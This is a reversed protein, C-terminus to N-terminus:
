ADFELIEYYVEAWGVGGLADRTGIGFYEVSLNIRNYQGATAIGHQLPAGGGSDAWLRPGSGVEQALYNPSALVLTQARMVWVKGAPVVVPAPHGPSGMLNFSEVAVNVRTGETVSVSRDATRVTGQLITRPVGEFWAGTGLPGAIGVAGAPAGFNGGVNGIILRLNAPTASGQYFRLTGTNGGGVVNINGNFTTDGTVVVEDGVVQFTPDKITDDDLEVVGRNGGVRFDGAVTTDGALHIRDSDIRVSEPSINIASVVGDGSVKLEIQNSLQSITSTFQDDTVLFLISYATQHILSLATDVGLADQGKLTATQVQTGDSWLRPTGDSWLMDFPLWYEELADVDFQVGDIASFAQLFRDATISQAASVVRTPRGVIYSDGPEPVKGAPWAETVTLQTGTRSAISRTVGAAVGSTLYVLDGVVVGAPDDFDGDADTLTLTGASDVIGSQVFDSEQRALSTRAEEATNRIGLYYSTTGDPNQLRDDILGFEQRYEEDSDTITRATIRNTRGVQFEDGVSPIPDFPDNVTILGGSVGTVARIQFTGDAGAVRIQDGPQIGLAEFDKSSDEVSLASAATVAGDELVGDLSAAAADWFAKSDEVATATLTWGEHMLAVIDLLEDQEPSTGASAPTANAENSWPGTGDRNDLERARVYLTTGAEGPIIWRTDTGRHILSGSGPTFGPVTSAHLEMGVAGLGKLGDSNVVIAGAAPEATLVPARLQTIHDGTDGPSGPRPERELWRNHGGIVQGSALVTTRADWGTRTMTIAHRVSNVSLEQVEGSRAPNLATLRTFLGVDPVFPLVHQTNVVVRSLDALFANAMRAAEVETDIGSNNDFSIFSQKRVGGTINEISSVDVANVREVLGTEADIYEVTVSNRVDRTSTGFTEDLMDNWDISLSYPPPTNKPPEYLTLRLQGDIHMWGLFWGIRTVLSQITDWVSENVPQFEGVLAGPSVPCFLVPADQGLHHSMVAQIVSEMPEGAESGFVTINDVQTDQLLKALDRATVSIVGDRISFDDGLYGIWQGTGDGMGERRAAYVQTGDSWLKPTGDSWQMPILAGIAEDSAFVRLVAYDHLLPALEPDNMLQLRATGVVADVGMNGTGVSSVDGQGFEISLVRSTVDVADIMILFYHPADNPISM